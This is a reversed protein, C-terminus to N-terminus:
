VVKMTQMIMDEVGLNYNKNSAFIACKGPFPRFCSWMTSQILPSGCVLAACGLNHWCPLYLCTHGRQIKQTAVTAAFLYVRKNDAIGLDFCISLVSCGISKPAFSELHLILQKITLSQKVICLLMAHYRSLTRRTISANQGSLTM